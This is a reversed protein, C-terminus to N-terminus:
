VPFRSQFRRVEAVEVQAPDLRLSVQNALLRGRLNLVAAGDIVDCLFAVDDFGSIASAPVGVRTRLLLELAEIVREDGSLQECGAEPDDGAGAISTYRKFNFTNWSRRSRLHSHSSCGVGVYEGQMWYNWNHRSYSGPLSWNSIEYWQMGHASFAEDIMRYASAQYDEDPYRSRDKALPTNKEVTLAYASIHTPAPSLDFVKRITEELVAASERAAGYILDVSYNDIGTRGIADVALYIESPDHSRGLSKLMESSFSQLGLSIRNVGANKYSQLKRASTSEPNCEVTIEAGSKPDAEEIIRAIFEAPLISPTGGGIFITGVASLEGRARKLKMELLVAEVYSDM